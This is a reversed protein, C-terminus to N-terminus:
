YFDFKKEPKLQYTNEYQVQAPAAPAILEADGPRNLNSLSGLKKGDGALNTKSGYMGKNLATNSGRTVATGQGLESMLLVDQPRTVLFSYDQNRLKRVIILNYHM